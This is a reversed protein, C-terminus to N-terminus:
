KKTTHKPVLNKLTESKRDRFHLFNIETKTPNLPIM